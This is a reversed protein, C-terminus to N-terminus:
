APSRVFGKAIWGFVAGILLLALPPGSLLLLSNRAKEQRSTNQDALTRLVNDTNTTLKVLQRAAETSNGNRAFTAADARWAATVDARLADASKTTDFAHVTGAALEVTFVAYLGSIPTFVDAGLFFGVPTVYLASLVIWLRFFGRSWQM